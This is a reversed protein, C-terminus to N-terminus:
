SARSRATAPPPQVCLSWTPLYVVIELDAAAGNTTALGSPRHVMGALPGWTIVFLRVADAM